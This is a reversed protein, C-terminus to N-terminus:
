LPKNTKEQIREPHQIDLIKDLMGNLQQLEKDEGEPSNMNLMLQELRDVEKREVPITNQKSRININTRENVSPTKRLVTNLQELKEYINAEGADTQQSQPYPSALLGKNAIDPIVIDMVNNEISNSQKYYPDNKILEKLKQSDAAAKEYYSMKTLTKDENLIAEPLSLNFGSQAKAETGASAVKGGGLSWFLLTLFPLTLIPLVMLLKRKQLFAPSHQHKM